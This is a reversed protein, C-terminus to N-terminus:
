YTTTAADAIGADIYGQLVAATEPVVDKRLSYRGQQKDQALTVRILGASRLLMLHHHITSKALDMHDMLEQLSAPGAALHRLIRLRREDGLAKYTKILWGPPADPDADLYEEAVPYCLILTEDDGAILVWPRIVVSPVLLVSRRSGREVAIGNTAVEILRDPALRGRMIRKATADREQAPRFAREHPAYAESSFDGVLRALHNRSSVPDMQLLFRMADRISPSDEFSEDALVMEIAESDGAAAATVIAPDRPGFSKLRILRRRMEVPDCTALYRVFEETSGAEPVEPVFSLLGIWVEGEGLERLRNRVSASLGAELDTFWADGLDYSGHPESCATAWMAVLLDYAPHMAVDVRFGAPGSTFDRIMETGDITATNM